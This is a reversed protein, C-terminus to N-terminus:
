AGGGETVSPNRMNMEFGAPVSVEVLLDRDMAELPPAGDRAGLVRHVIAPRALVHSKSPLFRGFLFTYVNELDPLGRDTATAIYFGGDLRSVKVDGDEERAAGRFPLMAVYARKPPEVLYPDALCVWMPDGAPALKQQVRVATLHAFAEKLLAWTPIVGEAWGVQLVRVAPAQVERCPYEGVFNPMGPKIGPVGRVRLKALQKQTAEDVDSLSM